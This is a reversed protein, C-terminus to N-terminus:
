GEGVGVWQGEVGRGEHRVFSVHLVELAGSMEWAGRESVGGVM